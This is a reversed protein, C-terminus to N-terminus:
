IKELVNEASDSLVKVRGNIGARALNERSDEALRTNIECALVRANPSHFALPVTLAGNGAGLEIIQGRYSTPVPALMRSILFRGSPLLAGTQQQKVLGAWFFHLYSGLTKSMITGVAFRWFGLM